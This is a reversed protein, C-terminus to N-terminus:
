TKLTDILQDIKIFNEELDNILQMQKDTLKFLESLLEHKDM